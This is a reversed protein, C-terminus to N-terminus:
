RRRATLRNRTKNYVTSSSFDKPMKETTPRSVGEGKAGWVALALSDPYDDHAGREDPHACVMLQGSWSKEMDM